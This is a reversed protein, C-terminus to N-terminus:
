ETTFTESRLYDIQKTGMTIVGCTQYRPNMISKPSIGILPKTDRLGRRILNNAKKFSNLKPTDLDM